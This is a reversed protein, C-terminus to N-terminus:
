VQLGSGLDLECRLLRRTNYSDPIISRIILRKGVLLPENRSATLEVEHDLDITLPADHAIYIDIAIFTRAEQGFLVAQDEGSSSSRALCPVAAAIVGESQSDYQLTGTNIAGRNAAAVTNFITCVDVLRTAWETRFVVVTDSAISM